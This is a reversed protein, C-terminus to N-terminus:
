CLTEIFETAVCNWQRSIYGHTEHARDDYVAAHSSDLDSVKKGLRLRILELLWRPDLDEVDSPALTEVCNAICYDQEGFLRIARAGLMIDHKLSALVFMIWADKEPMSEAIYRRFDSLLRDCQLKDCLNEYEFLQRATLHGLVFVSAKLVSDPSTELHNIKIFARM